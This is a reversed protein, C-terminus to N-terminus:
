HIVYKFTLIIQYSDAKSEPDYTCTADIQTGRVLHDPTITLDQSM